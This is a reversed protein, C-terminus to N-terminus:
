WSYVNYDMGDREIHCAIGGSSECMSMQIKAEQYSMFKHGLIMVNMIAVLALIVGAVRIAKDM